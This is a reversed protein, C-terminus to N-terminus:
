RAIIFKKTSVSNNDTFKIFYTGNQLASVKLQENIAINDKSAVLKGLVDYVKLSTNEANKINLIDNAPNPYISVKSLNNEDNVGLVGNSQFNIIVEDEFDGTTSYVTNGDSDILDVITGGDNGSDLLLFSYCDELPLDFRLNVTTNNQYPGGAYIVTGDPERIRWKCQPGNNDTTLEMFVTGTSNPADEFNVESENNSNDEDSPLSIALTNNDQIDFTIEPLEITESYLSELNGTWTYTNVDGNLVYEIDLSTVTEQGNNMIEIVPTISSSGTCPVTIDDISELVVDNNNDIGTYTPLAGSGSIIEQQTESIFAVVEMDLIETPIDNYDAPITYTFTEDIFSGETTTNIEVGWQGTIMHVLRHMHVYEDGQGGGTQPGLTNNQLLAVNLLNSTEPSDGTYYAEVHVTIENNQVNISTEVGVNVYSPEGLTTNSTTNWTGRGQATAGAPSGNMEFGPFNHRNVTGSPYGALQSQNAIADGFPTRFDPQGASPIAFGGTHINILFVDGPNNDQLTQAIQHGQPCFVCKIGTFEELIVNKNEPSTGVITQGCMSLVSFVCVLLALLNKLM